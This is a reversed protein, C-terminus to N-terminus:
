RGAPRELGHKQACVDCRYVISLATKKEYEAEIRLRGRKLINAYLGNAEYEDFEARSNFGLFLTLGAITPPEAERTYIKVEEPLSEATKGPKYDIYYDGEIFKFYAKVRKALKTATTFDLLNVHM